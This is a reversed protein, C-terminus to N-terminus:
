NEKLKEGCFPCYKIETVHSLYENEWESDHELHFLRWAVYDDKYNWNEYKKAYRISIENKLSGDCRHTKM